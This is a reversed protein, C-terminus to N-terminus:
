PLHHSRRRFRLMPCDSSRVYITLFNSSAASAIRISVVYITQASHVAAFRLCYPPAMGTQLSFYILQFRVNAHTEYVRIHKTFIGFFNFLASIFNCEFYNGRLATLCFWAVHAFTFLRYM